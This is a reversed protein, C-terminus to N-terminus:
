KEEESLKVEFEFGELRQITQNLQKAEERAQEILDKFDQMNTVSLHLTGNYLYGKM